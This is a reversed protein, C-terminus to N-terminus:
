GRHRSARIGLLESYAVFREQKSFGSGADSQFYKTLEDKKRRDDAPIQKLFSVIGELQDISSRAKMKAEFEDALSEGVPKLDDLESITIPM